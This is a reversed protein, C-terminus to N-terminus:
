YTRILWIHGQEKSFLIADPEVDPFDSWFAVYTGECVFGTLMRGGFHEEVWEKPKIGFSEEEPVDTIQYKNNEVGNKEIHRLIDIADM